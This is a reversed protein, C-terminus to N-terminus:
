KTDSPEIVYMLGLTATNQTKVAGTKGYGFFNQNSDDFRYEMRTLVHGAIKRELTATFENLHQGMKTGIGDHDNLFEYRAAVAVAPSAQYKLYGALGTYDALGTGTALKFGEQADYDVEAALSLKANPTFTIVTDSLHNWSNNNGTGYYDRPGALYNETLAWKKNPTWALSLGGTKGSNTAVVNNWGNVLFLTASWKDNFTYKARAGFHYYPIAYYFLLGRTYNWNQNSEIVEVGAPTVFKGADISLGKGFPAYVSFYAEKL